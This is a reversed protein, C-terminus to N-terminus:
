FNGTIIEGVESKSLFASQSLADILKEKDGLESLLKMLHKKQARLKKVEEALPKVHHEHIQCFQMQLSTREQPSILGYDHRYTACLSGLSSIAEVNLDKDSM